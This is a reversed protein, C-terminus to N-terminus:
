VLLLDLTPDNLPLNLFNRMISLKMVMNSVYNASFRNELVTIPPTKVLFHPDPLIFMVLFVEQTTITPVIIELTELKITGIRIRFVDVIIAEALTQVLLAKNLQIPMFCHLPLLPLHEPRANKFLFRRALFCATYNMLILLSPEQKLLILSHSMSMLSVLFSTDVLDSESILEGAVVLKNSIEQLSNLYNTMSSDGKQITEIKSRLSHIHARSAGSFRCELSQWLSRSDDMGITLPFLDESLTSNIWTM